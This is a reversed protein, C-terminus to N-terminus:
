SRGLWASESKWISWGVVNLVDPCQGFEVLLCFFFRFNLDVQRANITLDLSDLQTMCPEFIHWSGALVLFFFLLFFFPFFVRSCM